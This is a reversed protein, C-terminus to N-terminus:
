PLLGQSKLFAIVAVSPLKLIGAASSLSLKGPKDTKEETIITVDRAARKLELALALVYPDAEEAGRPKDPDLVEPVQALVEKVTALSPSKAATGQVRKCWELPRDQYGPKPNAWRELEKQVEPPFVLHGDAVLTTLSAYVTVQDPKSLRRRVETISCTDIIWVEVASLV